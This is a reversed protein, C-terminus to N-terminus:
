SNEYMLARNNWIRQSRTDNKLHDSESDFRIPDRTKRIKKLDECSKMIKGSKRIKEPDIPNNLNKM